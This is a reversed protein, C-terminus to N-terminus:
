KSFDLILSKNGSKDGPKVGYTMKAAFVVGQNNVMGDVYIEKGALLDAKEQDSFRHKCFENPLADAFGTRDFGVYEHGNYKLKALKGKVGYPKGTKKSILGHIEIEEGNCLRECEDDTFYHGGWERNFSVKKRKWTGEYKDKKQIEGKEEIDPMEAKLTAVNGRMVEMDHRVMDRIKYLGDAPNMNGAEIERMERNLQETMKVDGILTGNLLIYSMQGYQSMSLKGKREVMLPYKAKDSTVDAYTSTRTAGTGVDCTELKKMLWKMSPVPPKPNVVDAIYPSGTKGLGKSDDDEIDDDSYVLKWGMKKPVSASGTFKPFDQIHGKQSEYEYDEALMALFSKALIEYIAPGCAGYKTLDSLAGPVNPGPRNAGHAGGTKVHTPRPQRHTLLSTDVGVVAAIRDVLPLMDNFQDPTIVKDETRPYSVIKAEYMKQYVSLVDKAKVGQSSLRSSLGALDILKPPATRKMATSDTVVPSDHYVAQVDSKNDCIPEDPNTYIVGNEDRFKNTYKVVKKYEAVAKLGDGTIKVMASKLRGQRLVSRDPACNTAIRTFQMSLMDWQCRYQAKVFEMDTQMSPIPKRSIFAKQLEKESEDAFYMRTIKKNHLGLEDLIEWALLQGEGSPDVDTAIVIEDCTSLEAKLSALLASTDEKMRRKWSFKTEDWPLYSLDWSKYQAQLNSPVQQDPDLYEYLHGRANVIKYQENNFVGTVGGLATAFNARASPKETLIGIMNNKGKFINSIFRRIGLLKELKGVKRNM